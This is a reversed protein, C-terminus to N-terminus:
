ATIREMTKLMREYHSGKWYVRKCERCQWFADFYDITNQQLLDVIKEKDVSELVGNCVLCRSFPRFKEKLHFHRVVQQLQEFPEESATIFCRIDTM